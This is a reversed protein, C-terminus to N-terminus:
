DHKIEGTCKRMVYAEFLDCYKTKNGAREGLSGPELCSLSLCSLVCISYCFPNEHSNEWKRCTVDM